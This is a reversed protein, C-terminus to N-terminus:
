IEVPMSFDRNLFDRCLHYNDECLFIGVYIIIIGVYMWTSFRYMPKKGPDEQVQFYELLLKISLFIFVRV